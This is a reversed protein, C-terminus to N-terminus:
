LRFHTGDKRGTNWGLSFQPYPVNPQDADDDDADVLLDHAPLPPLDRQKALIDEWSVLM